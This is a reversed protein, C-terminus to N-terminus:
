TDLNTFLKSIHIQLMKSKMNFILNLTEHIIKVDVILIFKSLGFTDQLSAASLRPSGRPM